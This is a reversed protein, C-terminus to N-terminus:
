SEGYEWCQNCIGRSVRLIRGYRGDDGSKKGCNVCRIGARRNSWVVLYAFVVGFVSLSSFFGAWFIPNLLQSPM